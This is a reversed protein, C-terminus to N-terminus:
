KIECSSGGLGSVCYQRIEKWSVRKQSDPLCAFSKTGKSTVLQCLKKKTKPDKKSIMTKQLVRGLSIPNTYNEGSAFMGNKSDGTDVSGDNNMDFMPTSSRSGSCTNLAMLAGSGMTCESPSPPIYTTFLLHNGYLMPSHIMRESPAGSTKPAPFTIFWGYKAGASKDNVSTKYQVTNNSSYRHDKDPATFYQAVLMLKSVADYPDSPTPATDLINYLANSAASELAQADAISGTGFAVTYGAGTCGRTVLPATTIPQGARFLPAITGAPKSKALGWPAAKGSVDFKWLNGQLDGAYVTDIVGDADTDIASPTSLGNPISGTWGTVPVSIVKVLSANWSGNGQLAGELNVAILSVYSTKGDTSGYGNGLFATWKVDSGWKARGITYAAHGRTSHAPQTLMYGLQPIQKPSVELKVISGPNLEAKSFNAPNTIDLVFFGQGGAGLTGVLATKWAGGAIINAAMPDGDVFLRHQYNAASYTIESLKPMLMSPIYAFLEEGDAAKFAHLMGDDAGVYVVGERKQNVFSAYSPLGPGFDSASYGEDPAGIYLPSSNVIAGMRGYPRNRFNFAGEFRSEQIYEGRIYNLRANGLTPNSGNNKEISLLNQDNKSLSGWRFAVPIAGPLGSSQGTIIRRGLAGAKESGPTQVVGSVRKDNFKEDLRKNASWGTGSFNGQDDVFEKNEVDASEGYLDGYWVGNHVRYFPYFIKNNGSWDDSMVGVKASVGRVNKTARLFIEGLSEKMMESNAGEFWGDPVGDMNSDWAPVKVGAKDGDISAKSNPNLFSDSNPNQREAIDLDYAGYKAALVYETPDKGAPFAPDRQGRAVLEHVDVFFSDIHQEEKLDPRIDRTHGWYALGAINPTMINWCGREGGPCAMAKWDTSELLDLTKGEYLSMSAVLSKVNISSSAGKLTGMPANLGAQNTDKCNSDGVGFFGGPVRGDCNGNVDGLFIISNKSCANVIPDKWNKLIMPFGDTVKEDTTSLNVRGDGNLYNDAMGISGSKYNSSFYRLGEYYLEAIPDFFKYHWGNQNARYGFQNIYNISGSAEGGSFCGSGSDPSKCLVGTKPDWEANSNSSNLWNAGNYLDSGMSKMPSRLVGGAQYANSSANPTPGNFWDVNPYSFVGFRAKRAYDHILGTPKYNGSPYKTCFSELLGNNSCVNVIVRYYDDRHTAWGGCAYPTVEGVKTVRFRDGVLVDPKHGRDAVNYRESDLNAIFLENGRKLGTFDRIVDITLHKDPFNNDDGTSDPTYSFTDSGRADLWGRRLFTEKETDIVRNGGTMAMRFSDPISMTAWNLFRGSWEEPGGCIDGAGAKRVPYFYEGTSGSVFKGHGYPMYKYCFGSEFYGSYSQNRNFKKTKYSATNGTPFEVSLLLLINAPANYAETFPSQSPEFAAQCIVGVGMFGGLMCIRIGSFVYKIKSMIVVWVENAM